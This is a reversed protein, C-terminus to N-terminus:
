GGGVFTVIEIEDKPNINIIEFDKKSIIKKNLEIVVKDKNIKFTELLRLISFDQPIAKDEGNIKVLIKSEISDTQM